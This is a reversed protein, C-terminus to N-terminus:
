DKYSSKVLERHLELIQPILLKQDDAHLVFDARAIRESDSMQAAIRARVAEQNTADRRVTRAIRIEEPATVVVTKEVERDFASEFLIATEMVTYPVDTHRELWKRYDDRVAPHIVTNLRNLLVGDRFVIDAIYKRDMRNDAFYAKEGFLSRIKCVTEPDNDSLWRGRDDAYYVPVGLQEMIRAVTTKGSGIGGTLGVRIM